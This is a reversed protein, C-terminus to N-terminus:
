RPLRFTLIKAESGDSQSTAISIQQRGDALYTVPNGFGGGGLPIERILTGDRKDFVYLFDSAASIFLLGGETVLAGSQGHQPPAVGLPPLDLDKLLEHNRISPADGLTIQWLLEGANLDLATLTSYPPKHVPVGPAIELRAGFGSGSYEAEVLPSDVPSVRFLAPWNIAKVYLMGTNPDFSAGGWNGAGWIGPMLLTGELSPPTFLPGMRYDKVVELARARLEPTFDILDDETFGQRGFPPPKTPYPQTAAAQEGPVDSAPAPRDEIPWVPEGTVRDFVYVFGTKAVVAVADITRGEVEITILNPPSSLDYDWIGHRVTQFHWVRRGTNADLCVISEAFLNDGKRHGGYFDNNPTSVPLYVLGRESDVTFPAWVNASGTVSASDDEWTENGYEGEQPITHFSWAFEGTRVNFAQVDGPPNRQFIRNDPVGSGVIVLDGYVVPPSTNTYLLRNTEWMLNETLDAVGGEGFSAIPEGTLADLAVLMWRSNIFVRREEGDTWVAVGRHCFRCGRALNGWDYARPDYAWLEEGTAADLAVVRSYSTSVYMVGDLVVPTGQFKGPAVQQGRIPSSAFSLPKEGTEWSWGLEIQGANDRNIEDLWSYKMGGPDGGHTEWDARQARAAAVPFLAAGLAVALARGALSM